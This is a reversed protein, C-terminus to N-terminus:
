KAGAGGADKGITKAHGPVLERAAFPGHERPGGVKGMDRDLTVFFFPCVDDVRSVRGCEGDIASGDNVTVPDGRKMVPVEMLWCYSLDCEM